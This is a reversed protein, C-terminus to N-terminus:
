HRENVKYSAEALLDLAIIMTANGGVTHEDIVEMHFGPCHVRVSYQACFAAIRFSWGANCHM